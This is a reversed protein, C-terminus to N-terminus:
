ESIDASQKTKRGNGNLPRQYSNVPSPLASNPSLRQYFRKMPGRSWNDNLGLVDIAVGAFVLSLFISIIILVFNQRYAFDYQRLLYIGGILGGIALVPIWLPFNALILQIKWNFNPGHQRFYFASLSFLFSILVASATLGLFSVLSGIVFYWRPKMRIEGTHIKDMVTEELNLSKIKKSKPM